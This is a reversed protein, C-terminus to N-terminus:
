SALAPLVGRGLLEVMDLDDVALHQLMVRDVGADELERLRV